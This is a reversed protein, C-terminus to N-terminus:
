PNHRFQREHTSHARLDGNLFISRASPCLFWLRMVWSLRMLLPYPTNCDRHFRFLFSLLDSIGRKDSKLENAEIPLASYFVDLRASYGLISKQEGSDVCPIPQQPVHSWSAKRNPHGSSFLLPPSSVKGGLPM